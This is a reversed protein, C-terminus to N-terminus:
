MRVNAALFDLLARVRAPLPGGQGIYVAHFEETDGPNVDELLPILRGAKIDARVTFRALRGLGAGSLAMHRMAEGDAVQIGPTLPLRIVDVGDRMPWGEVSRAYSLGIRRHHELDSVTTPTGHIELYGPSAVIVM